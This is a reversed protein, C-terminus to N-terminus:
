QETLSQVCKKVDDSELIGPNVRGGDNDSENRNIKKWEPSRMKEPNAMSNAPHTHVIATDPFFFNRIRFYGSVHPRPRLRSSTQSGSFFVNQFSPNYTQISFSSLKRL